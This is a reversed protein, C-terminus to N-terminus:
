GPPYPGAAAAPSAWTLLVVAALTACRARAAKVTRPAERMLRPVSSSVCGVGRTPPTCSPIGLNESRESRALSCINESASTMAGPTSKAKIASARAVGELAGDAGLEPFHCVLREVLQGGGEGPLAVVDAGPRALV